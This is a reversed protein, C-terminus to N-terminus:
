KVLEFLAAHPQGDDESRMLCIILQDRGALIIEHHNLLVRIRNMWQAADKLFRKADGAAKKSFPNRVHLLKSCQDYLTKFNDATLFGTKVPQNDFIGDERRHQMTPVPYFKPNIERINDLIEKAKWHEEFKAHMAAYEAKNAVLSALAILELIKRIQLAVCEASPVDYLATCRRTLFCAVVDARKKIEDM